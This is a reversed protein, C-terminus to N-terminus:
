RLIVLADQVRQNMYSLKIWNASRPVNCIRVEDIKGDFSGYGEDYLYTIYRLYRGISVDESTNRAIAGPNTWRTSDKIQGDVYIRQNTGNRVAAIYKWSKATAVTDQSIQWGVAGHYEVMEWKEGRGSSNKTQKLSYQDHGKGIIVHFSDNITDAYIWASLSYFGNEQFNLKSSATGPILIYSSSGDFEQAM